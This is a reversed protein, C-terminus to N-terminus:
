WAAPAGLPARARTCTGGAGWGGGACWIDAEGNCPLAVEQSATVDHGQVVLLTFRRPAAAAAAGRPADRAVPPAGRQPAADGAEAVTAEPTRCGRVVALVRHPGAGAALVPPWLIAAAPAPGCAGEPASDPM